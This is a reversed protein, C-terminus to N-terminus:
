CTRYVAIALRDAAFPSDVASEARPGSAVGSLGGKADPPGPASAPGCQHKGIAINTVIFVGLDNDCFSGVSHTDPLKGSAQPPYGCLEGIILWFRPGIGHNRKKPSM